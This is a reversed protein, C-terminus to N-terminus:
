QHDTRGLASPNGKVLLKIAGLPANNYLAHHLPLWGNSDLTTMAIIDQAKHAYALQTELFNVVKSNDSNWARSSRALNLPNKGYGNNTCIAVPHADFLLQVVDLDLNIDKCSLHLPLDHRDTTAKSAGDPDQLLLCKIIKVKEKGGWKVALHIPLYGNSTRRGISEPYLELLYKVTDVRSV